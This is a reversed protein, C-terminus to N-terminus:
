FHTTKRFKRSYHLDNERILGGFITKANSKTLGLDRILDNLDRQNPYYPNREGAAGRFSNDRDEVDVEEKSKSSEESSPQKREPPTPVVLEPCHPVPVISSPLDPYMIAYANKGTQYKSPDVMCFYCNSTHDIPERWSKPIAYKMARKKGRYWGELKKATSVPLILNGPNTKIGSLCALIYRTPKM